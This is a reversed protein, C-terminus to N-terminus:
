QAIEDQRSVFDNVDKDLRRLARKGGNFLSGGYDMVLYGAKSEGIVIFNDNFYTLSARANATADIISGSECFINYGAFKCDRLKCAEAWKAYTRNLSLKLTDTIVKVYM